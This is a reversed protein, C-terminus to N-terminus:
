LRNKNNAKRSHIEAHCNQCVVLVKRHRKLMIQAWEPRAKFRKLDELKRVQHSQVEAKHHCLECVGKLLRRILEKPRIATVLVQDKVLACPRRKLSIGGFRAILPKKGPRQVFVELCKRPGNPTQVTSKYKALMKRLSSKHKAALTRLLSTGMTFHLKSFCPLNDALLYYNVLGSYRSQYTRVIDLDTRGTMEPLHTPRNRKLYRQRAREPVDRPVKLRLRGNASRWKRADLKTDSKSLSIEYNLFRAASTAANTILTKNESLELKLEDLLFRRLEERIEQAELKSGILCLLFDDAYRVYRLRRYNPDNPDRSPMQRAAMRWRRSEKTGKHRDAQECAKRYNGNAKRIKGRTHAPILTKEVFTDIRDLYINALLPSVIGGQPTGSLTERYTWEECYGAKLLYELLGIFRGDHIKERLISLLIQHDICDFCGKIDGEIFWKTGTGTCRIQRLATHTGRKPRFGHSSPSFQPEFYAELLLRLVEQLLKDTWTPIGLPRTKGDKKPIAVRRVPTWRFREFRLAEILDEIKAVSMADATEQTAGKTMAGANGYLNGYAILYLEPNFLQRYLRELPLGKRGRNGIVELATTASQLKAHRRTNDTSDNQRGKGHLRSERERVVVSSETV